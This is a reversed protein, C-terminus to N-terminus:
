LFFHKEKEQKHEHCTKKGPAHVMFASPCRKAFHAHSRLRPQLAQKASAESFCTKFRGNYCCFGVILRVTDVSVFTVEADGASAQSATKVLVHERFSNPERRPLKASPNASPQIIDDSLSSLVYCCELPFGFIYKKLHGKFM